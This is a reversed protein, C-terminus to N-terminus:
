DRYWTAPGDNIAGWLTDTNPDYEFTWFFHDTARLVLRSGCGASKWWADLANGSVRGTLVGSFVTTAAGIQACTTAYEDVYAMHVNTGGVISLHQASGDVPDISSWTGVFPSAAAAESVPVGVLATLLAATAFVGLKRVDM